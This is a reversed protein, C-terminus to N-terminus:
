DKFRYKLLTWIAEFGDKWTIKKGNDKDRGHYSIPVEHIPIKKKGIKATVEPCFEFRECKLHLTKIIDSRFVKYATAEDTLHLGFLLNVTVALIKNALWNPWHMGKIKGLFRSGYVVQAKGSLIPELLAPYDNVSYELDADQILVIDGTVEKLGERIAAGKGYNKIRFILKVEQDQSYKEKLISATKDKSFDDIVIIEKLLDIPAQKVAEIVKSINQEENYAPIIISLKMNKMNEMNKM